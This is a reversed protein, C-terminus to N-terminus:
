LIGEGAELRERLLAALRSQHHAAGGFSMADLQARKLHLHVDCEWTFGIGGHVQLASQCVRIGAESCWSKAASAAVAADPHDVSLCWAAWWVASRMGEVDVLMDACRHKVAQFSGIPKGFQVRDKAYAVSDDLMRQACGLLEAAYAVAGVDRHRAVVDAGGLRVGPRPEVWGVARTRDMAPEPSVRPETSAVLEDGAVGVVVAAGPAHPVVERAGSWAAAGWGSGDLLPAALGGPDGARVLADLAVLTGLIPAPAVHAGVQELLLAGEVWGLGVGGDAEPTAIGPWGQDVMARWLDADVRDGDPGDVIARVRAPSAHGTLLERAADRLAVQDADLDFDV